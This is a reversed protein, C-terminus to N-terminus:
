TASCTAPQCVFGSTPPAGISCTPDQRDSRIADHIGELGNMWDAEKRPFVVIDMDVPYSTQAVYNTM